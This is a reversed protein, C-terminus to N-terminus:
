LCKSKLFMMVEKHLDSQESTPANRMCSMRRTFNAAKLTFVHQVIEEVNCTKVHYFVAKGNSKEGLSHNVVTKLRELVINFYKIGSKRSPMRGTDDRSNSANGQKVSDLQLQRKNWDVKSLFLFDHRYFMSFQM